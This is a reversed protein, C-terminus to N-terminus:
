EKDIINWRMLIEAIARELLDYDSGYINASLGADVDEDVDREENPITIHKEDLFDEFTDIIQGIFEPRDEVSVPIRANNM